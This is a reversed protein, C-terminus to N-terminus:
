RRRKPSVTQGSWTAAFRAAFGGSWRADGAHLVVRDEARLLQSYWSFAGVLVGPKRRAIERAVEATYYDHPSFDSSRSLDVLIAAPRSGDFHKKEELIRSALWKVPPVTGSLSYGMQVATGALGPVRELVQISVRGAEIVAPLEGVKRAARRFARVVEEIEPAHAPENVRPWNEVDSFDLPDFGRVEIRMGSQVLALKEMLTTNVAEAWQRTGITVVELEVPEDSPGVLLDAFKGPASSPEFARVGLGAHLAFRAVALEGCVSLFGVRGEGALRSRIERWGPLDIRDFEKIASEVQNLLNYTNQGNDALLTLLRPGSEYSMAGRRELTALREQLLNAVAPFQARRESVDAVTVRGIATAPM